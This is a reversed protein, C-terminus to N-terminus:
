YGGVEIFIEGETVRYGRKNLEATLELNSFNEIRKNRRNDTQEKATAWRCNSPEYNGNADIRDLSKGSPRKGMDSLFNNFSKWRECVEIGRGGYYKWNNCKANRCRKLIGQWIKYESSTGARSAFGHKFNRRHLAEKKLCGCSSWTGRKMHSAPGLTEKGCDCVCRWLVSGWRARQDTPEIVLLRGFRKGSLNKIRAM